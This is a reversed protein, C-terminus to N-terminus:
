VTKIITYIVAIIVLLVGISFLGYVLNKKKKNDMYYYSICFLELGITILFAPVFVSNKIVAFLLFIIILGVILCTYREYKKIDTKGEENRKNISSKGKKVSVM